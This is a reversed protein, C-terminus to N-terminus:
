ESNLASGALESNARLEVRLLRIYIFAMWVCLAPVLPRFQRDYASLLTSGGFATLVFLLLAWLEFPIANRRMIAPIISLLFLVVVFM